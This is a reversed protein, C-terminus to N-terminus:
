SKWFCTYNEIGIIQGQHITVIVTSLHLLLTTLKKEKKKKKKGLPSLMKTQLGESLDFPVVRSWPDRLGTQLQKSLLSPSPTAELMFLAISSTYSMHLAILVTSASKYSQKNPSVMMHKRHVKKKKQKRGQWGLCSWFFIVQNQWSAETNLMKNPLNWDRSGASWTTLVTLSPNSLKAKANLDVWVVPM